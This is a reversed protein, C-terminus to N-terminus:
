LILSNIKAKQAVFLGSKKTINIKGRSKLISKVYGKFDEKNSGKIIKNVKTSLIYNVLPEADTVELNDDYTMIRVDEFSKGLLEEGNELGFARALPNLSFSINDDYNSVLETLEKMYNLGFTAAYLTGGPKLVRSIESLAKDLGPVHYLMYNAIVIDFLGDSYPIQETNIINFEFKDLANNLINKADNLMGESFDSLIIHSDNPIRHLNSRWLLANGCGLELIRAGEPFKIQDFVWSTWRFPNTGFKRNLEVRAEFNKSDAYQELILSSNRM